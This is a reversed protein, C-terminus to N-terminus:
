KSKVTYFYVVLTDQPVFDKQRFEYITPSIKQPEGPFCLSVFQDPKEKVLRLTFDGIPGKWNRGTGLIYEVKDYVVTVPEAGGNIARRVRNEVARKTREDLCDENAQKRGKGTFFNWLDNMDSNSAKEWIRLYAHAFGQGTAPEYQHEVLTEIRAPFTMRWFMTESLDWGEGLGESVKKLRHLLGMFEKAGAVRFFIENDSLGLKRLESTIDSGKLTAKREHEIAVPRGNVLVEFTRLITERIRTGSQFAGVPSYAPLPFAVTTHIDQDTENFFRYKVRMMRPSIELVEELMRIHESKLFEIGGAGLAAVSDNARIGMPPTLIALLVILAAPVAPLSIRKGRPTEADGLSPMHDGRTKMEAPGLEEHKRHGANVIAALNM